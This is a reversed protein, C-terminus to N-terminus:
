RRPQGSAQTADKRLGARIRRRSALELNNQVDAIGPVSWALEGIAHKIRKNQVTGTLTVQGSECRVEVEGSGSLLPDVDLAESILDVIEEDTPIRSLGHQFQPVTGAGALPPQFGIPRGLTSPQLALSQGMVEGIGFPAYSGVSFPAYGGVGFPSPAYGFGFAAPPVFPQRAYFAALPASQQPYGLPSFTPSQPAFLAPGFPYDFPNM